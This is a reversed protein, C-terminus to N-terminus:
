LYDLGVIILELNSPDKLYHVGSISTLCGSPKDVIHIVHRTDKFLLIFVLCQNM